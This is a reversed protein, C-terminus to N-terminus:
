IRGSPLDPSIDGTWGCGECLVDYVPNFPTASNDLALADFSLLDHGCGPCFKVKEAGLVALRKANTRSM